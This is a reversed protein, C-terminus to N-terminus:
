SSCGAACPVGLRVDRAVHALKATLFSQLVMCCCKYTTSVDRLSAPVWIPNGSRQILAAQVGTYFDSGANTM